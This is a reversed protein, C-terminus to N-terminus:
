DRNKESAPSARYTIPHIGMLGKMDIIQLPTLGYKEQVHEPTYDEVDTIGKRTIAVTTKGTALQTLDKDGVSGKSRLRRKLLFPLPASLITRKMNLFSTAASKTPMLSSASSRCRNQFSRRRKQRGGKYEKFTSHRFTTKGADFAVLMHTPKEDELMKMLIM